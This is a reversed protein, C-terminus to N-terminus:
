SFESGCSRYFPCHRSIKWVRRVVCFEVQAGYSCASRNKSIQRKLLSITFDKSCFFLPRCDRSVTGKRPNLPMGCEMCFLISFNLYKLNKINWYFEYLKNFLVYKDIFFNTNANFWETNYLSILEKYAFHKKFANM